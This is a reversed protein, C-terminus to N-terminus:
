PSQKLQIPRHVIKDIDTSDPFVVMQEDQLHFQLRQVSPQWH